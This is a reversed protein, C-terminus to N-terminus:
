AESDIPDRDDSTGPYAALGATAWAAVAERAIDPAIVTVLGPLGAVLRKLGHVHALRLTVRLRGGVETATSDALYDALLPLSEPAVDVVVELDDPSAQFLTEPITRGSHDAVAGDTVRLGSMRDIRFNRVDDRLHDYAQMYWDAGLSTIRLPDVLRRRHEGRANLYDFELQRGSAVARRVEALTADAAEEAIALRSPEASAGARLKATLAALATSGANEPLASLYQLGAILAAAERASLRPADDIAVHHVIVIVDDDEFSDWDIDFLDNPQYTGTAGPLGSTAILKVADRIETAGVGFHAAAESVEVVRQDLLYPVLSLLFVLRDPARLAPTRRAPKPSM